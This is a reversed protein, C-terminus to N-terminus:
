ILNYFRAANDGMIAKKEVESFSSIYNEVLNIVESYNGALTCVPWDSGIMLRNSGFAELVTDLYPKFHSPEWQQWHAETIMGSIKCSVNPFRALLKIEKRWPEIIGDKILPKAIHDLVFRQEPFQKVLAITNILHGPFILLDYALDYKALSKIGSCFGKGLMFDDDPEDHLVHRVGVLKKNSVFSELQEEVNESCLNVWGVVGKIFENDEALKLLWRTEKLNQRAQVAISGDFGAKTLVAYFGSPLHDRKLSNMRENIWGFEQPNYKWFHQHADIKM